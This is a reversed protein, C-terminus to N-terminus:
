REGNNNESFTSIVNLMAKYNNSIIYSNSIVIM